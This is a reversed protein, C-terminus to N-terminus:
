ALRKRLLTVQAHHTRVSGDEEQVDWSESEHGIAVFGQREYLARARPNDDEVSVVASRLGRRMIRVEAERMLLSGIGLGQLEPDTALQLLTGAEEHEEFDVAGKGIPWGGPDRVALYEVAGSPVRDLMRRVVEIHLPNGSWGIKALDDHTLDNVLVSGLGQTLLDERAM